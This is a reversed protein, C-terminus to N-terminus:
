PADNMTSTRARVGCRPRRAKPSVVVVEVGADVDGWARDATLGPVGYQRALALTARDAPPPGAARTRPGLAAASEAQAATFPVVVAGEAAIADALGAVDADRRAAEQIVESWNVAWVASGELRVVEFGVEGFLLALIASAGSVRKPDPEPGNVDARGFGCRRRGRV